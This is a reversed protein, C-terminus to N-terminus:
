SRNPKFNTFFHIVMIIGSNIGYCNLLQQLEKPSNEEENESECSVEENALEGVISRQNPSEENNIDEIISEEICSGSDEENLEFIEDDCTTKM